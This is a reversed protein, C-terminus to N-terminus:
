GVPSTSSASCGGAKPITSPHPRAPGAKVIENFHEAAHVQVPHDAALATGIANTGAGVESWLAGEAFNMSDAGASRVKANGEVWLLLGEADSVVILHESEDAVAGLWKRVLPAAAELPHTEWRSAVDDRDALV